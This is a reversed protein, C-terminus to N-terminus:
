YLHLHRSHISSSTTGSSRPTGSEWGLLKQFIKAPLNKGDELEIERGCNHTQKKEERKKRQLDTTLDRLNRINDKKEEDIKKSPFFSFRLQLKKQEKSLKGVWRGVRKSQDNPFHDEDWWLNTLQQPFQCMLTVSIQIKMLFECM